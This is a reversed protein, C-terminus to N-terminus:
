RVFLNTKADSIHANVPIIIDTKFVVQLHHPLYVFLLTNKHFVSEYHKLVNHMDEYRKDCGTIGCSITGDANKFSPPDKQRAVEIEEHPHDNKHQKLSINRSFTASCKIGDRSGDCPIKVTARSPGPRQKPIYLEKEEPRLKLSPTTNQSTQGHRPRKNPYGFFIILWISM